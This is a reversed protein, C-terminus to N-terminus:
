YQIRIILDCFKNNSNVEAKLGEIITSLSDKEKELKQTSRLAKEMKTVTQDLEQEMHHKKLGNRKIESLITNLKSETEKIRMILRDQTTVLEGKQFAELEREWTELQFKKEELSKVLKGLNSDVFTFKQDFRTIESELEIIRKEIKDKEKESDKLNGELNSIEFELDSIEKKHHKCLAKVEKFKIKDKERQAKIEILDAALKELKEENKIMKKQLENEASISTTLDLNRNEILKRQEYYEYAYM